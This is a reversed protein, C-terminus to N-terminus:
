DQAVLGDSVNAAESKQMAFQGGNTEFTVFNQKPQDLKRVASLRWSRSNM